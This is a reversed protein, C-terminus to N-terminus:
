VKDFAYIAPFLDDDQCMIVLNRYLVPSMGPGWKFVFFPTPLPHRWVDQGTVADVTLLRLTSFYFYVREADVAPTTSAHSNTKHIEALPGTPWDRQWLKRGTTADLAFLSVTESATMSSAFLRGAAVVPSGIGDGLKASWRVNEIASFKTPLTNKSTSLGSCNPGCFQPWDEAPVVAVQWASAAIAIALAFPSASPRSLTLM